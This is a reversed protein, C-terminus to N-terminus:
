NCMIVNGVEIKYEINLVIGFNLFIKEREDIIDMFLVDLNVYLNDMLGNRNYYFFM